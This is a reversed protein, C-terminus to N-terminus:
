RVSTTMVALSYLERSLSGGMWMAGLYVVGLGVSFLPLFWKSRTMQM